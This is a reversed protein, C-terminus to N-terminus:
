VIERFLFTSAPESLGSGGVDEELGKLFCFTTISSSPHSTSVVRGGGFMKEEGIDETVERFM